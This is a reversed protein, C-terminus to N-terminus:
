EGVERAIESLYSILAQVQAQTVVVPYGTAGSGLVDHHDIM